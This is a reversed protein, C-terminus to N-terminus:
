SLKLNRQTSIYINEITQVFITERNTTVKLHWKHTEIIIHANSIFSTFISSMNRQLIVLTIAMDKALHLFACDIIMACIIM